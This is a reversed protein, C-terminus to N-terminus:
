NFLEQFPLMNQPCKCATSFDIRGSSRLRMVHSREAPRQVRRSRTPKRTTENTVPQIETDTITRSSSDQLDEVPDTVALSSAGPM